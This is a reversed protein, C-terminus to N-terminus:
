RGNKREVLELLVKTSKPHVFAIKASGAGLRPQKDILFIGAKSLNELAARIDSVGIAIHHLGEGNKEIAKALVGDQSTSELLEIRSEGIPLMAVAANQEQVTEREIEDPSLGLVQCYVPLIEEISKVAIGVHDIKLTM